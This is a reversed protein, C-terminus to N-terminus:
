RANRLGSRKAATAASAGGKAETNKAVLEDVTFQKAPQAHLAPSILAGAVLLTALRTNM